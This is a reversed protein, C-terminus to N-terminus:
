KVRFLPQGYEVVQGNEVLVETIEGSFNSSIENMLKMAEVICVVDGQSVKTGVSVFPDSEPSPAAYFVGIMPSTIINGDEQLVAAQESPQLMTTTQSSSIIETSATSILKKEKKIQLKEGDPSELNFTTLSSKDVAEILEKIEKINYM